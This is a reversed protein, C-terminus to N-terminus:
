YIEFASRLIPNSNEILETGIQQLQVVMKM